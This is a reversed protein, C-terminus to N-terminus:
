YRVGKVAGLAFYFAAHPQSEGRSSDRRGAVFAYGLYLGPALPRVEDLIDALSRAGTGM